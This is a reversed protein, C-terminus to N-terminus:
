PGIFGPEHCLMGFKMAVVKPMWDLCYCVIVCALLQTNALAAGLRAMSRRLVGPNFGKAFAHQRGPDFTHLALLIRPDTRRPIVLRPLRKFPKLGGWISM